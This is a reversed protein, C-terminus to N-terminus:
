GPNEWCFIPQSWERRFISEFPEMCLDQIYVPYCVDKSNGMDPPNGMLPFTWFRKWQAELLEAAVRPFGFRQAVYQCYSRM